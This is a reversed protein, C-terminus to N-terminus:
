FVLFRKAYQTEQVYFHHLYRQLSGLPAWEKWQYKLWRREEKSMEGDNRHSSWLCEELESECNMWAGKTDMITSEYEGVVKHNFFAETVPMNSSSSPENSRLHYRRSMEKQIPPDDRSEIEFKKNEERGQQTETTSRDM